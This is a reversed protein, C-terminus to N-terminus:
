RYRLLVAEAIGRAGLGVLWTALVGAAVRGAAAAGWARQLGVAAALAIFPGLAHLYRVEVPSFVAPILLATCGLAYAAWDRWAPARAVGTLGMAALLTAPWGWQALAGALQARLTGLPGVSGSRQGGGELLRPLQERILPWYQGYYALALALGVGAALLGPRDGMAWRGRGLFLAVIVATLVVLSSLHATTGM